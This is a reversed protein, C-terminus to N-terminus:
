LGSTLSMSPMAFLMDGVMGTAGIIVLRKTVARAGRDLRRIAQAGRGDSRPFALTVREAAPRASDQAVAARDPHASANWMANAIARGDGVISFFLFRAVSDQCKGLEQCDTTPM